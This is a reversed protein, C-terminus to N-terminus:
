PEPHALPSPKTKGEGFHPRRPLAGNQTRRAPRDLDKVRPRGREARRPKRSTAALAAFSM